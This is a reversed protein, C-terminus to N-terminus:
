RRPEVEIRFDDFWAIAESSTDDTDVVIALGSIPPPLEGFAAEYDAVLNRQETMWRNAYGDGSRVVFTAVERRFPNRFQSGPPETGAWVYSLARTRRGFPEDGFTVFVRAAYDDGGRTRERDNLALSGAIKWRWSLRARVPAPSRLTRYVASASNYATGVLVQDGGESTVSYSSERRDLRQREWGGLGGSFEEVFSFSGVEVPPDDQASGGGPGCGAVVIAAALAGRVGM